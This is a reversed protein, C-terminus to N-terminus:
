FDPLDITWGSVWGPRIVELRLRQPSSATRPTQVTLVPDNDRLVEQSSLIGTLGVVLSGAGGAHRPLNWRLLDPALALLDTEIREAVSRGHERSLQALDIGSDIRAAKLAGQWDGALRRETCEAIMAAPVAYLRARHWTALYNNPVAGGPIDPFPAPRIRVPTM